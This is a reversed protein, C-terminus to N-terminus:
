EACAQAGRAGGPACCEWGELGSGLGPEPWRAAPGASAVVLINLSLFFASSQTPALVRVSNTRSSPLYFNDSWTEIRAILVIVLSVHCSPSIQRLIFLRKTNEQYFYKELKVNM